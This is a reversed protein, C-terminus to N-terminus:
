RAKNAQALVSAALTKTDSATRGDALARAAVDEMTAGTQKDTGSQSLVSAALSRALASTQPDHLTRAALSSVGQSTQKTNKSM